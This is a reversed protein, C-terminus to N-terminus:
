KETKNEGDIRRLIEEPGLERAREVVRRFAVAYEPNRNLMARAQQIPARVDHASLEEVTTGLVEALKPWYEEALNRNGSEIESLFAISKLGLALAVNRQTLGKAMRLERVLEGFSKSM